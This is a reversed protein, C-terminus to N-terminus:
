VPTFTIQLKKMKRILTTKHIGLARATKERHGGNQALCRLIAEAEATELPSLQGVTEPRNRVGEPVIESPLSQLDILKSKCLIFAHELINELERVNGPYDYRMLVDMAEPTVGLFQKQKEANLRTILSDILLPIDVKRESLPPIELRIVNLRFYLDDRFRGVNMLERLNKNTAAIVRVDVSKAVTGGLAEYSKEQLVRLLKVQVAGSIDGIEDLFITGGDALDFRGPKDNKADTFAGKKYGFLESELLTDPLAGCNVAIFPESKRLSINHIARAFLEKGTGSAGEIM